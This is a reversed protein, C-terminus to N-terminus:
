EQVDGLQTDDSKREYLKFGSFERDADVYAYSTTFSNGGRCKCSLTIFREYVGTVTATFMQNVFQGSREVYGVEDGVKLTRVQQEKLAVM